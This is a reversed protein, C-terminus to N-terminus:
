ALEKEFYQKLAAPDPVHGEQVARYYFCFARGLAFTSAGALAAGAAVGVFPIFKSVERAAQRSLMGLGLTTALEMFRKGSLPQGYLKALETVMKLQIGPLIFLDVFPIPIAGTAAALYSYGLITPTAAALYTDRLEGTARDLALLTQRYAEPLHRLISQKLEEG